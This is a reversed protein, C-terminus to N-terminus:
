LEGNTYQSNLKDFTPKSDQSTTELVKSTHIHVQLTYGEFEKEVNRETNDIAPIYEESAIPLTFFKKKM